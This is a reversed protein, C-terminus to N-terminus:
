PTKFKKIFDTKHIKTLQSSNTAVATPGMMTTFTAQATTLKWLEGSLKELWDMLDTLYVKYKKDQLLVKEATIISETNGIIFAKDKRANIVIRDSDIAIQPGSSYSPIKIADKNKKFGINMNLLKHKSAMYISADDKKIDEVTYSSGKEPKNIRFIMIPDDKSTGRWTPQVEYIGIGPTNSTEFHRSMRISQGFRGEWLDDGEYPQLPKWGGISKTITYGLEERDNLGPTGPKSGENHSSREWEKPFHHNSFDDVSNYPMFYFYRLPKSDANHLPLDTGTSPATFLLVQEGILPIRRNFTAPAAWINRVQGLVHSNSGIRVQISGAFLPEGADDKQKTKFTKKGTDIVEGIHFVSM